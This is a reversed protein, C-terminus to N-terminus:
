IDYEGKDYFDNIRNLIEQAEIIPLEYHKFFNERTDDDTYIKINM